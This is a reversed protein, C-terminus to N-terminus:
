RPRGRGPLPTAVRPRGSSPQRPASARQPRSGSPGRSPTTRQVVVPGAPRRPPPPVPPHPPPSPSRQRQPTPPARVPAHQPVPHERPSVRSQREGTTPTAAKTAGSTPPNYPLPPPRPNTRRAPAPNTRRGPARTREAGPRPTREPAPARGPTPRGSGCPTAGLRVFGAREPESPAPGRTRGGRRTHVGPPGRPGRPRVPGCRQSRFRCARTREARSTPRPWGLPSGAPPFHRTTLGELPLTFLPEHLHPWHPHLSMGQPLRGEASRAAQAPRDDPRRAHRDARGPLPGRVLSALPVRRGGALTRAPGPREAVAPEAPRRDSAPDGVPLVAAPARGSLAFIAWLYDRARTNSEEARLNGWKGMQILRACRSLSAPAQLRGGSRRSSRPPREGGDARRRRASLAKRAKEVRDLHDAPLPSSLRLGARERTFM